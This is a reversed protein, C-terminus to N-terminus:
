KTKSWLMVKNDIYIATFSDNQIELASARGTPYSSTLMGTDILFVKGNFRSQISGNPQVTHGV